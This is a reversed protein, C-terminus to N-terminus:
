LLSASLYLGAGFVAHTTLSRLRAAAPHRTRSSAVGLGLAPQLTFFPVVVTVIGFALAPLLTPQGLWAEPVLLVFLMAFAVGISYHSAWGMGCEHAKAPSTAINDHMIRGAPMHLVWRGLLCYDLSQVGFATRAFLAWLDICVTAGIGILVTEIVPPM